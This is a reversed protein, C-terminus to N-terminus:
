DIIDMDECPMTKTKARVKSGQKYGGAGVGKSHDM